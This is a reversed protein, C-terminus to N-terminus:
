PVIKKLSDQKRRKEPLLSEYLVFAKDPHPPDDCLNRDIDIYGLPTQKDSIYSLRAWEEVCKLGKVVKLRHRIAHGM